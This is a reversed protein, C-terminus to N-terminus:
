TELKLYWSRERTGWDANRGIWKGETGSRELYYIHSQLGKELELELEV